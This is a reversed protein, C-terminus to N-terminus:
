IKAFLFDDISLHASAGPDVIVSNEGTRDDIFIGAM